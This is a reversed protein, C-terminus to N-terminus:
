LEFESRRRLHAQTISGKRQQHQSIEDKGEDELAQMDLIVSAHWAHRVPTIPEEDKEMLKSRGRPSIPPSPLVSGRPNLLSKVRPSVPPTPLLMSSRPTNPSLLSNRILNRSLASIRRIASTAFNFNPPPSTPPATLLVTSKNMVESNYIPLPQGGGMRFSREVELDEADGTGRSAGMRRVRREERSLSGWWSNGNGSGLSPTDNEGAANWNGPVELAIQYTPLIIEKGWLQEQRVRLFREAMRRQMSVPPHLDGVTVSPKPTMLDEATIPLNSSAARPTIQPPSIRDTSGNENV